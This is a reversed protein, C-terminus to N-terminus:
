RFGNDKFVTGGFEVVIKKQKPPTNTSCFTFYWAPASIEQSISASICHFQNTASGLYAVALQYAAPLALTPPKSNDYPPMGLSAFVTTVLTVLGLPIYRIKM